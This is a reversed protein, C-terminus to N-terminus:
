FWSHSIYSFCPFPQLSNAHLIMSSSVSLTLLCIVCKVCFCSLVSPVLGAPASTFVNSSKDNPLSRWAQLTDVFVAWVSLCLSVFLRECYTPHSIHSLLRLLFVLCCCEYFGTSPFSLWTSKWLNLALKHQMSFEWTLM